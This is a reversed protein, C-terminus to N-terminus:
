RSGTKRVGPKVNALYEAFVHRVAAGRSELGLSDLYAIVETPVRATITPLAAPMTGSQSPAPPPTSGAPPPLTAYQTPNVLEAGGEPTRRAIKAAVLAGIQRSFFSAEGANLAGMRLREYLAQEAKGLHKSM